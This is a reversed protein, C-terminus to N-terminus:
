LISILEAYNYDWLSSLPCYRYFRVIFVILSPPWFFVTPAPYVAV